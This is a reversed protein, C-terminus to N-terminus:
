TQTSIEKYILVNPKAVVEYDSSDTDKEKGSRSEVEESVDSNASRNTEYVDSQPSKSGPKNTLPLRGSNDNRRNHHRRPRRHHSKDSIMEPYSPESQRIDEVMQRPYQVQRHRLQVIAGLIAPCTLWFFLLIFVLTVPIIVIRGIFSQDEVLKDFFNSFSQGLSGALNVGVKGLISTLVTAPTIELNKNVVMTKYYALCNNEMGLVHTKLYLTISEIYNLQDQQCEKPMEVFKTQHYLSEAEAQQKLYIYEMSFTTAVVVIICIVFLGLITLNCRVLLHVVFLIATITIGFIIWNENYSLNDLFNYIFNRSYSRDSNSPYRIKASNILNFLINDVDELNTQMEKSAGVYSKLINLQNENINIQVDFTLETDEDANLLNKASESDYQLHHLLRHVFRKMYKMECEECKVVSLQHSKNDEINSHQLCVEGDSSDLISSAKAAIAEDTQPNDRPSNVTKMSKSAFDYRLMDSPDVWDSRDIKTSTTIYVLIFNILLLFWDM